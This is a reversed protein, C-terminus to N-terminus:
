TKIVFDFTAAYARESDKILDIKLNKSGGSKRLYIQSTLREKNNFFVKTHIHPPRGTYPVPVITTFQYSGNSDTNVAGFGQFNQDFSDSKPESPHQYVGRGDCQWIEVRADPLINGERDLVVGTLQLESGIYQDNLLLNGTQPIPVVPYFPGEAQSDTLRTSKASISFPAALSTAAALQIFKRREM